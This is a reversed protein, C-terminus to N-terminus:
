EESRRLRRLGRLLHIKDLYGKIRPDQSRFILKRFEEAHAPTMQGPTIGRVELADLYMMLLEGVGRNYERHAKDWQHQALVKKTIPDVIRLGLPGSVAQEFALRTEVPVGLRRLLQRPTYHHGVAAYDAGVIWHNDPTADSLVRPDNIREGGAKTKNTWQGGDSHGAPVRPQNPDYGSHGGVGIPQGHKDTGRLLEAITLGELQSEIIRARARWEDPTRPRRFFPDIAM